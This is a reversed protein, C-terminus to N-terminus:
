ENIRLNNKLLSLPKFIPIDDAIVDKFMLLITKLESKKEKDLQGYAAIMKATAQIANKEIDSNTKAGSAELICFMTEVFHKKQETNLRDVWGNFAKYFFRSEDTFEAVNIFDKGLIEWTMADHQWFAFANSMVIEYEKPQHFIMGVVSFQPYFSFLKNEIAKFGEGEFFDKSFGPGDFNYVSHIRKQLKKGCLAATNVSLNGGKSHGVIIFKGRFGSAAKQLYELADKQAPIQNQWAINFDEKWGIITDDTGRFAIVATKNIIYTVAAFQEIKQEDYINVFGCLEINRYRKSEACRFMLEATRKNILYGINIREEYDPSNTFDKAVQAFTKRKKFSSPVIRDFFSYTIHALLLADVKNFPDQEFSLDGRWSFYDFFDAM